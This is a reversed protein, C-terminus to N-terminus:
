RPTAKESASRRPRQGATERKLYPALKSTAEIRKARGHDLDLGVEVFGRLM